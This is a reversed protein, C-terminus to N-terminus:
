GLAIKAKERHQSPTWCFRFRKIFHIRVQYKEEGRKDHAMEQERTQKCEIFVLQYIMSVKRSTLLKYMLCAIHNKDIQKPEKGRFSTLKLKGFFWHPGPKKLKMLDWDAQLAHAGAGHSM